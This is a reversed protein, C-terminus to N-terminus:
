GNNKSKEKNNKLKKKSSEEKKLAENEKKLAEIEAKLVEEKAKVVAPDVYERVEGYELWIKAVEDPIEKHCRPKLELIEIRQNKNLFSHQYTRKSINELLM